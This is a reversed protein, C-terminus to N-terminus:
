LELKSSNWKLVLNEQNPASLVVEHESIAAIRYDKGDYHLTDGPRKNSWTRREPPYVIDAMYGDVRKFVKDRTLKVDKDTDLLHLVYGTPESVPGEVERLEFTSNRDGPRLASIVQGRESQKRYAERNILFIYHTAADSPSVACNSIILYLPTIKTVLQAKATCVAVVLETLIILARRQAPNM